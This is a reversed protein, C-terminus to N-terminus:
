ELVPVLRVELTSRERASVTVTEYFSHYRPHRVEVRHTGPPLAVGAQLAGVPAVFREDIWLEADPVNSQVLVVADSASFPPAPRPPGGCGAAAVCACLVLARAVLSV